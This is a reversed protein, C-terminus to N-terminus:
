ICPDCLIRMDNEGHAFHCYKGYGCKKGNMYNNCLRTKYLPNNPSITDVNVDNLDNIGHAFTCDRAHNRCCRNIWFDCIRTKIKKIKIPHTNKGMMEDILLFKEIMGVQYLNISIKVMVKIITDYPINIIAKKPCDPIAKEQYEMCYVFALIQRIKLLGLLMKKNYFNERYNKLSFDTTNTFTDNDRIYFHDVPLYYDHDFTLKFLSAYVSCPLPNLVNRIFKPHFKTSPLLVGEFDKFPIELEWSNSILRLIYISREEDYNLEQLTNYQTGDASGFWNHPLIVKNMEFTPNHSYYKKTYTVRLTNITKKIKINFYYTYDEHEQGDDNNKSIGAVHIVLRFSAFIASVIDIM